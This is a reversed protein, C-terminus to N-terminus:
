PRLHADLFGFVDSEWTRLSRFVLNAARRGSPQGIASDLGSRRCRRSGSAASGPAARAVSIFDVYGHLLFASPIGVITIFRGIKDDIRLAEPRIDDSWLTLAGCFQRKLGTSSKWTHV